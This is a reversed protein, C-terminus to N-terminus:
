KSILHTLERVGRRQPNEMQDIRKISPNLDISILHFGNFDMLMPEPLNLDLSIWWFGDFNSRNFDLSFGKHPLAWRAFCSVCQNFLRGGCLWVWKCLIESYFLNPFLSCLKDHRWLRNQVVKSRTWLKINEFKLNMIIIVISAARLNLNM